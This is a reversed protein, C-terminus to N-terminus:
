PGTPADSRVWQPGREGVRLVGDSRDPRGSSDGVVTGSGEDFHYLAATDADPEFRQPPEFPGTYRLTTSLRLEDVLGAYSPYDPGADHKEAGLVLYPDSLTCPQDDACEPRPQARDPYSVDGVPGSATADPMGDVFLALDGSDVARTLAVHHWRDDDVRTVGCLATGTGDAGTIGFVIRGDAVSMGFKRGENFRDRDLVINGRIWSDGVSCDVPGAANDGPRMRLWLELTMDTAGLDADFTRVGGPDDILIKVRDVDDRGTGGFRLAFDGAAPPAGVEVLIEAPTALTGDDAAGSLGVLYRGPQPYRHDVTPVGEAITGDGLDWRLEVAGGQPDVGAGTLRLPAGPEVSMPSAADIRVVPAQSPGTGCAM